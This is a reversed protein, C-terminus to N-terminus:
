KKEDRGYPKRYYGYGKYYHNYYKRGYNKGPDSVGNFVIGLVKANVFALQRVAAVFDPRNCRNQRVVLLMGDLKDAVALADTVEKIPPLDVIVYDYHKRLADLTADMKASSLLEAPNPPNQGATIVHFAKDEGSV